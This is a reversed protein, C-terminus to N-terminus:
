RSQNGGARRLFEVLTAYLMQPKAPKGVFGNMGAEECQRRDEAFVNATMAIVPLAACQPLKRLRRTAELGDMNPMQMDMLVAAYRNRQVLELAQVGDEAMDVALAVDELLMATIERNVPEDDAVLIRRGAFESCLIQRAEELSLRPAEKYTVGSKKLRATFWFTSGVGPVSEAGADGGMLLAIKKTISLGLGTGGYRRTMSNDAQEFSAFLRRLTQPEIGIGTDSVEFRLLASADDEEVVRVRLVVRGATTFKVANVAYNLLAQQLRTVDGSFNGPLPPVERVLELNKERAREAIMSHVNAMVAEVALPLEELTVKSAEIKSIDLVDDIVEALHNSAAELKALHEAQQGSLGGRRILHAMGSIANLPTRIEHSMNALFASKAVNAVEAAEKARALESTRAEIRRELTENLLRLENEARKKATIDRAIKSAGVIRGSSDRIPSITVSVDIRAGDKRLRVTEFHEVPTGARVSQLIQDEEGAREVPILKQLPRGIMEEAIFGFMKEAGRNWSTVIGDLSKGIIADDSSRVIEEFRMLERQLRDRETVNEVLVVFYDVKGGEDRLARVSLRTQVATGDKRLYRKSDEYSDIEAALLQRYGSSNAAVDDPHTMDVWRMHRLEEATYGLMECLAPNVDMWRGDVSSTAMGIMANEFYARFRRQSSILLANSESERLDSLALRLFVAALVLLTLLVGFIGFLSDRRWEALYDAEAIGVTVYVPFTGVVHSAYVRRVGDVPSIISITKDPGDKLLALRTPINPAPRNDIELPGPYRVVVAGNDIRRVAIAGASGLDIARFEEQLGAINIAAVAVGLFKGSSDRVAKATLLNTRGTLRGAIVESIVIGPDNGDRLTQFYAREAVNFPKDAPQSSYISDAHADFVRLVLDKSVMNSISALWDNMRPQHRAVADARMVEPAIKESIRTVATAAASFEVNLKAEIVRVLNRANTQAALLAAQRADFVQYGLLLLFTVVVLAFIPAYKALFPWLGPQSYGAIFRNM